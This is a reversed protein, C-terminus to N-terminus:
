ARVFRGARLEVRSVNWGITVKGLFGSTQGVRRELVGRLYSFASENFGLRRADYAMFEYPV